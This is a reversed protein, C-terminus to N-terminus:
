ILKKERCLGAQGAKKKFENVSLPHNWHSAGTYFGSNFTGEHRGFSTSVSAPNALLDHFLAAAAAALSLITRAPVAGSAGLRSDLPAAAGAVQGGM